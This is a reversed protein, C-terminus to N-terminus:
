FCEYYVNRTINKRKGFIPNKAYKLTKYTIHDFVSLIFTKPSIIKRWLTHKAHTKATKYILLEFVSLSLNNTFFPKIGIYHSQGAKSHKIVLWASFVWFVSKQYFRKKKEVFSKECTIQPKQYSLIHFASFICANLLTTRNRM